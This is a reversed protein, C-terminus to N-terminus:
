PVKGQAELISYCYSTRLRNMKTAERYIEGAVGYEVKKQELDQDQKKAELNQHQNIAIESLKARIEEEKMNAVTDKFDQDLDEFPAKKKRGRAM